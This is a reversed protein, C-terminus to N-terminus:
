GGAVISLGAILIIDRQYTIPYGVGCGAPPM